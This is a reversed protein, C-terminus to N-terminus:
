IEYISTLKYGCVPCCADNGNILEEDSWDEALLPEDCEPCIFYCDDETNVYPVGYTKECYKGLRDFISM